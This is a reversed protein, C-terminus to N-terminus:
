KFPNQDTIIAKAFALLSSFQADAAAKVAERQRQEESGVLITRLGAARGARIDTSRDGVMVAGGLEFGHERQAQFILGPAPKRCRCGRRLDAIGEDHHTEPHHPCYYIGELKGGARAVENELHTHIQRLSDETCLGRAVVPQNTIVYCHIGSQTLLAVAEAAGPLMELREVRDILDSDINLVGDRDLLVTTIPRPAAAAERALTREQLYQEVAALRDPTGMDKVFGEEPLAYTRLAEGAKLVAPFINAGFDTARDTPIYKLISKNLIYVAANALNQYRRGPQHEHIFERVLGSEARDILHSDWPHDSARVLLTGLPAHQAHAALMPRLEFDIFVDGYALVFNEGLRDAAFQVAGATGLPGPEILVEITCNERPHTRYHETITEGLHGAALIFQTVGAAQLADMIHDLVPRGGVPILPKPLNRAREGLRTGKGGCLILAQELKM